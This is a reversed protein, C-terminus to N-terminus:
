EGFLRRWWPRATPQVPTEPPQEVPAVPAPTDQPASLLLTLRENQELLRDRVTETDRLRDELQAVREKLTALEIATEDPTKSQVTQATERRDFSVHPYVRALEAGDISYSGDEHRTASLKGQSIARALTTKGRGVLRAAQGLTYQM